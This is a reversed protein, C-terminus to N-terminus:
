YNAAALAVVTFHFESPDRAMFGQCVKAADQLLLLMRVVFMYLLFLLSLLLLSLLM